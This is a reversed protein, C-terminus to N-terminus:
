LRRCLEFPFCVAIRIIFRIAHLRKINKDYLSDYVWRIQLLNYPFDHLRGRIRYDFRARAAVWNSRRLRQRLLQRLFSASRLFICCFLLTGLQLCQYLRAEHPQNLERKTNSQSEHFPILYNFTAQWGQL